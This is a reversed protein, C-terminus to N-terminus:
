NMLKDVDDKLLKEFGIMYLIDARSVHINEIIKEINNDNNKLILVDINSLILLIISVPITEHFMNFICRRAQNLEEFSGINKYDYFIAANCFNLVDKVTEM